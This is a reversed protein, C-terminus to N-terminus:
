LLSKFMETCTGYTVDPISRYFIRKLLTKMALIHVMQWCSGKTYLTSVAPYKNTSVIFSDLLNCTILQKLSMWMFFPTMEYPLNPHGM